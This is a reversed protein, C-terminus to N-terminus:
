PLYRSAWSFTMGTLAQLAIVDDRFFTILQNELDNPLTIEYDLTNFKQFAKATAPSFSKQSEVKDTSASFQRFEQPDPLGIFAAVRDLVALHDRELDTSDICLIQEPAFCQTFSRLQEAYCSMHCYRFFPRLELGKMDDLFAQQVTREDRRNEPNRAFNSDPSSYYNYHSIAREIPDRLITILRTAPYDAQIRAAALPDHLYVPSADFYWQRPSLWQKQPFQSLYWRKGKHFNYSYYCPEKITTSKARSHFNLYQYLSTTGSKM